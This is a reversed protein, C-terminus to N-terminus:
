LGSLYLTLYPCVRLGPWQILVCRLAVCTVHTSDHSGQGPYCKHQQQTKVKIMELWASKLNKSENYVDKWHDGIQAFIQWLKEIQEFQEQNEGSKGLWNDFQISRSKDLEHQLHGIILNFLPPRAPLWYRQIFKTDIPLHDAFFMARQYHEYWDGWLTTGAYNRIIGLFLLLWIITVGHWFIIKKFDVLQQETSSYLWRMKDLYVRLDENVM